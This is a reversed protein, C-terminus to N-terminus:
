RLAQFRAKPRCSPTKDYGALSPISLVCHPMGALMFIKLTAGFESYCLRLFFFLNFYIVGTRWLLSFRCVRVFHAELIGNTLAQEM